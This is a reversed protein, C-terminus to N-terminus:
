LESSTMLCSISSSIPSIISFVVKLFNVNVGNTDSLTTISSRSSCM